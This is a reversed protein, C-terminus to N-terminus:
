SLTLKMNHFSVAKALEEFFMIIQKYHQIKVLIIFLFKISFYFKKSTFSLINTSKKKQESKYHKFFILPNMAVDLEIELIRMRNLLMCM